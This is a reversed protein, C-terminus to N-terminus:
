KAFSKIKRKIKRAAASEHEALSVQRALLLGESAPCPCKKQQQVLSMHLALKSAFTGIGCGTVSESIGGLFPFSKVGTTMTHITIAAKTTMVPMMKKKTLINKPPWAYCPAEM